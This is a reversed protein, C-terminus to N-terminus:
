DNAALSGDLGLEEAKEQMATLCMELADDVTLGILEEAKKVGDRDVGRAFSKDKFKKKLSKLKVSRVDKDPRVFTAAAVLGTLQELSLLTKSLMTDPTLGHMPNHERVARVILEHVSREELMDAGILSHQEMECSEWDIDHLLGAIGWSEPSSAEFHEAAKIMLVETSLMHRRLNEDKVHEFMWDHAEQRTIGADLKALSEDPGASGASANKPRLLPFLVTERIPQDMLFSFLRESVGFGCTPPMGYELAEVFDADHMQAEADGAERMAAQEEFREAQDIPDNLESYGNGVESGAIIIQFREVTRPDEARRKALPSVEVPHNVLFAPGGIDKRCVKWLQDILRGKGAADDVKLGANRCAAQLDELSADLVNLGHKEQVATVYDIEPWDAGLDIDFGRVSFQLTGFAAEVCHRYMRQTIDMGKRYDAYGWYFEMQTYDQLHEPSIGENRFQRGIEFTKEFGGVMLRKQWLEGMSIRLYLDIDLANHHTEFAEADAGGPTAELVPTEVEVFGEDLLFTRMSNWFRAKKVFVERLQANTLLDLYRKRYREEENKLGHWKDPLPRIAKTLVEVDSSLLSQEGKKTVFPTGTVQVIDGVDVMDGVFAYLEDGLDQKTFVIQVTASGDDLQAFTLKGHERILKIRGALTEKGGNEDFGEVFDVVRASRQTHAQFPNKGMERLRSVKDRRIDIESKQESM